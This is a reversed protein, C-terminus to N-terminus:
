PAQDHFHSRKCLWGLKAWTEFWERAQAPRIRGAASLARALTKGAALARLVAYERPALRRYFLRGGRRHVGLHIRGRRLRPRSRGPRPAKGPDAAANSADARLAERRRVAIVYDDVLFEFRGISLYPQLGVRLTSPRASALDGPALPPLAEGDFAVTQAWEFRAVALAAPTKPRTWKPEEAIFRPLRSPLDRLTFSRSPYKALYAIALREFRREGLLALLGPHDERMCGLVRYWYTRNYIELREFSSMRDNPKIFQSAVEEMRRGDVWRRQMRWGPALPRVLAHTMLRQLLRLDDTSGLRPPARNPPPKLGVPTM